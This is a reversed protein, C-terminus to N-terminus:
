SKQTPITNGSFKMCCKAKTTPKKKMFPITTPTTNWWPKRITNRRHSASTKQANYKYYNETKNGYIDTKIVHSVEDGEWELEEHSPRGDAAHFTTLAVMRNKDDYKMERYFSLEGYESEEERLLNGASDYTWSHEGSLEREYEDIDM